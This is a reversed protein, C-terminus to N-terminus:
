LKEDRREWGKEALVEVGRRDCSRIKGMVLGM